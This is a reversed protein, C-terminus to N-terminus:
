LEDCPTHFRVAAYAGLQERRVESPVRLTEAPKGRAGAAAPVLGAFTVIALGALLPRHM